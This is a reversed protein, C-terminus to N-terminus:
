YGSGFETGQKEQELNDEYWRCFTDYWVPLIQQEGYIAPVEPMPFIPNWRYTLEEDRIITGADEMRKLARATSQYKKNIRRAIQTANGPLQHAILDDLRNM